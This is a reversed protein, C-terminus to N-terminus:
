GADAEGFRRVEFRSLSVAESARIGAKERAIRVQEEVTDIGDLDPLLLGRRSGAEVVVGYRRPDLAAPDAAPEPPSLLDVKYTLSPLEEARVPAFRPDRTAAAIANRVVEDFLHRETAATTGICGRLDGSRRLITVFAGGSAEVLEPPRLAAEVDTVDLLTGERVKREVAARAVGTVSTALDVAAQEDELRVIGTMYGVGWPGDYALIEPAVRRGSLAGMLFSVSPVSDEGADHRFADDFGLVTEVDWAAFAEHFQQEFERSAPHFGYPGEPHLTHAGDASAIIAVRKDTRGIVAQAAEGLAYHDAAPRFSISLAVVPAAPAADGLYYLPVWAAHDHPEWHDVADVRIDHQPAEALLEDVLDLDAARDFRVAGAGFRSLDGQLRGRLVHFRDRTVIGHPSMLLLVDPRAAELGARLADLAALTAGVERERGHGVEPVIIPPHPTVCAFVVPM